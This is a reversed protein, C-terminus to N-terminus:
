QAPTTTRDNVLPLSVVFRAGEPDNLPMAGIEGGHHTAITRAVYLGLGLNGDVSSKKGSVFPKFLREPDEPLPDGRNSVQFQAKNDVVALRIEIATGTKSHELANNLLKDIMQALSDANGLVMINGAVDTHLQRDSALHEFDEVCATVLESLSVVDSEQLRLASEMNTAAAVQDLFRRMFQLSRTARSVYEARLEHHNTGSILQLSSGIGAVSNKLEHRVFGAVLGLWEREHREQTLLQEASYYERRNSIEMRYGGLSMICICLILVEIATVTQEAPLQQEVVVALSIAATFTCIPAAVAFRLALLVYGYMLIMVTGGVFYMTTDPGFLLNSLAMASSNILVTGATAVQGFREFRNHYTFAMLAVIAPMLVLTRIYTMTAMQDGLVLYDLYMFIMHIGLAACGAFRVGGVLNRIQAQRYAAEREKSLFNLTLRHIPLEAQAAQVPSRINGQAM